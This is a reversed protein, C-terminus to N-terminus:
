SRVSQVITRNRRTIWVSVEDIPPAIRGGGSRTMANRQAVPEELGINIEIAIETM